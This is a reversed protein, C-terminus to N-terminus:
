AVKTVAKGDDIYQTTGGVHLVLELVGSRGGLLSVPLDADGNTWRIRGAPEFDHFGSALVPDTLDVVRFWTGQRLVVRRLAVGLERPDRALGMEVPVVSRSAIRVSRFSKPLTFVLVTEGATGADIRRGDVLLHVDADRTLPVGRRPGARDLLRRWAQDVVAGGTVVPACPEQPPLHWGSNANQFLWRNGDDRYSEAPAGNAVLVDHTELEVHYITVEQAQDDWLITRHNVLFEVPILVDDVVFAHAKTVRLDAYPVNDALAGKRVIVPTAPSRQGRTVMVQGRGVWAVRRAAGSHTVVTDGAALREVEVEGIPTEILTGACFCLPSLFFPTLAGSSTFVNDVPIGNTAAVSQDSIVMYPAVNGSNPQLSGDPYWTGNTTDFNSLVQLLLSDANYGLLQAFVTVSSGAALTTFQVEVVQANNFTQVGVIAVSGPATNATTDNIETTATADFGSPVISFALTTPDQQVAGVFAVNDSSVSGILSNNDTGAAPTLALNVTPTSPNLFLPQVTSGPLFGSRDTDAQIGIENTGDLADAADAVVFFSMGGIAGSPGVNPADDFSSFAKFAVEAGNWSVVQGFVTQTTGGPQTIQFQVVQWDDFVAVVRVNEATGNGGVTANTSNTWDGTTTSTKFTAGSSQETAIAFQSSSLTIGGSDTVGFLTHLNLTWATLGFAGVPDGVPTGDGTSTTNEATQGFSTAPIGGALSSSSILVYPLSADLASPTLTETAPDFGGSSYVQFLLDSTPSGDPNATEYGILKGWVNVTTGGSTYQLEVVQADNYAAVIKVDSGFAATFTEGTGTTIALTGPDQSIDNIVAVNDSNFTMGVLSAAAATDIVGDGANYLLEGATNNLLLPPTVPFQPDLLPPLANTTNVNTGSLPATGAGLATSSLYFYPADAVPSDLVGPDGSTPNPTYGTFAQFAILGNNWGVVRGFITDPPAGNPQNIQFQLIGNAEAYPDPTVGDGELPVSVNIQEQAGGGGVSSTDATWNVGTAPTLNFGGSGDGAPTDATAFNDSSFTVYDNYLFAETLQQLTPM